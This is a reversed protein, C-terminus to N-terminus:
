RECVALVRRVVGTKRDESVVGRVISATMDLTQPCMPM